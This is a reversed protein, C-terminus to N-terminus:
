AVIKKWEAPCPRGSAAYEAKQSETGHNYLFASMANDATGWRVKSYRVASYASSMKYERSTIIWSRGVESIYVGQPAYLPAPGNKRKECQEKNYNRCRERWELAYANDTPTLLALISAPCKSEYPGGSECMDKYGWITGDTRGKGCTLAVAGWVELIEGSASRQEVAAYYTSGVMASKIVRNTRIVNGEKDKVEFTYLKDCEKRRDVSGNPKYYTAYYCTTWGM